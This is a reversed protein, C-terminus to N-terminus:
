SNNLNTLKKLTEKFTIFTNQGFLCFVVCRVKTKKKVYELITALMVEACRAVPYGFIGTSIAPFALSKIGKEDALQLSRFTARKLKEDEFGEGMHPGVAHIVFKAKLNGAGTIAAGGVPVEGNEQIWNNSEDQIFHGGRRLIAGAVGGGHALRSNAANVIADTDMDTIDSIRLEIITKNIKVKM